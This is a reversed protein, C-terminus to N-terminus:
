TNVTLPYTKMMWISVFTISKNHAFISGWLMSRLKPFLRELKYSLQFNYEIFFLPDRFTLFWEIFATVGGYFCSHWCLFFLLFSLPFPHIFLLWKVYLFFLLTSFTRYHIHVALNSTERKQMWVLLLAACFFAESPWLM